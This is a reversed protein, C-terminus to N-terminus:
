SQEVDVEALSMGWWGALFCVIVPVAGMIVGIIVIEFKQMM